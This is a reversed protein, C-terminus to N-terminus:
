VHIHVPCMIIIIDCHLKAKNRQGHIYANVAAPLLPQVWLASGVVDVVMITGCSPVSWLWKRSPLSASLPTFAKHKDDLEEFPCVHHLIGLVRYVCVTM